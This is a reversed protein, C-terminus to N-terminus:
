SLLSSRIMNRLGLLFSSLHLSADALVFFDRRTGTTNVLNNHCFSFCRTTSNRPCTSGNFDVKVRRSNSRLFAAALSLFSSSKLHTTGNSSSSWHCNMLFIIWSSSLAARASAWSCGVRGSSSSTRKCLSLVTAIRSRFSLRLGSCAVLSRATTAKDSTCGSKVSGSGSASTNWPSVCWKHGSHPLDTGRSHSERFCKFRWSCWYPQM